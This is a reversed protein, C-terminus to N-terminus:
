SGVYCVVVRAETQTEPELFCFSTSMKLFNGRSEGLDSDLYPNSFLAGAQLPAQLKEQCTSMLLPAKTHALKALSGSTGDLESNPNAVCPFQQLYVLCLHLLLWDAGLDSDTALCGCSVWTTGSRGTGGVVDTSCCDPRRSRLGWPIEEKSSQAPARSTQLM